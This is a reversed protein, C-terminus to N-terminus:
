HEAIVRVFLTTNTLLGSPVTVTVTETPSGSDSSTADPTLTAWSGLDISYEYRYSVGTSLAPNRRTYSFRGTSKDLPSSIPNASSGSIPSLGFAYEAFNTLGDHDNDGAPNSVDNNPLFSNAWTTYDPVAIAVLKLTTGGDGIALTYGPIAPDLV